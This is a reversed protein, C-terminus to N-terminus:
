GEADILQIYIRGGTIDMWEQVGEITPFYMDIVRGEQISGIGDGDSDAGFGTDLCEWYGLFEGRSGDEQCKWALVTKGMWERRAACIGQRVKRGAATIEGHCYGTTMMQFVEGTEARRIREQDEEASAPMSTWMVAAALMVATLKKARQM